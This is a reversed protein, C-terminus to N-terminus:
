KAQLRCTGRYCDTETEGRTQLSNPSLQSWVVASKSTIVHFLGNRMMAMINFFDAQYPARYSISKTEQGTLLAVRTLGMEALSISSPMPHDFWSALVPQFDASRSEVWKNGDRFSQVYTTMTTM